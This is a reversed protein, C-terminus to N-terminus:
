NAIAYSIQVDATITIEGTSIPTSTDKGPAAALDTRYIPGPINSSETIYTVKGLKVGANDALQKATAVADAVAKTRAQNYFPTPDDISFSVSNVRTLNGGATAVADLVPGTQDIKRVKVTVTNTVM